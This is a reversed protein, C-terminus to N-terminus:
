IHPQADDQPTRNVTQSTAPVFGSSNAGGSCAALGFISAALALSAIFRRTTM